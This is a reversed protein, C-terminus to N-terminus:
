VLPAVHGIDVGASSVVTRTLTLREHASLLPARWLVTCLTEIAAMTPGDTIVGQADSKTRPASIGLEAVVHAGQWTLTQILMHRAHVGGSTGASMVAVPKAYLEGSGVIWDLANKLTGAIAGAYEPSALVVADASAVRTRWDIVSDNPELDPNFPPLLRLDAYDDVEAIGALFRHAVALASRNASVRQLSGCVTLIRTTM